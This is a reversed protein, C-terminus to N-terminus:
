LEQCTMRTRLPDPKPLDADSRGIMEDYPSHHVLWANALGIQSLAKSAAHASPFRLVETQADTLMNESDLRVVYVMGEVSIIEAEPREGAAIRRRLQELTM